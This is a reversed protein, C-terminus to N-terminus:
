EVFTQVSGLDTVSHVSKKGSPWMIRVEVSKTLATLGFHVKSGYHSQYGRGLHIAALQKQLTAQEASLSRVEVMAGAGDRNSDTGCLRVRLWSGAADHLDNRLLSPRQNANLVVIDQDGDRDFDAFGAARSSEQVALGSSSRQAVTSFRNNGQNVMLFNEVKVRTTDRIYAINDMFHGCAIFIDCLGDHNFDELGIGWHVHAFLRRDLRAQNTGDEFFGEGFSGYLVPMEDQYTTSLLDLWGDGDLDRAEVGMNGNPKGAGDLAVGNLIAQEDFEGDGQNIWLFNARTDNAVFIDCDGDRDFDAALVGMGTGAFSAIGSEESVDTFQGQGDNRFLLDQEPAYDTPGPHFQYNGIFREIHDKFEFKQYNACYLDLDGDNDMDFFTVGAGFLRGAEVGAFQTADEFTGDGNNRYFKNEGFNSVYVDPDGDNDYDGCVVGLGYGTDGVGASDTVDMFEWNGLNRFLRNKPAMPGPESLWEQGRAPLRAGNLFYIDDLGDGDYDFVAMGSAFPEVVYHQGNSGDTHRFALNVQESVDTLQLSSTQELQGLATRNGLVSGVVACFLLNLLSVGRWCRM